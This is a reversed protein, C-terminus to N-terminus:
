QRTTMTTSSKPNKTRNVKLMSLLNEGSLHRIGKLLTNGRTHDAEAGKSVGHARSSYRSKGMKLPLEFDDDNEVSRSTFHGGNQYFITRLSEFLDLLDQMVDADCWTSELSAILHSKLIDFHYVDLGLQFLRYHQLIARDYCRQKTEDDKGFDRIALDMVGRQIDFLDDLHCQGFYEDLSPDKLMRECMQFVIVDFYSSGGMREIISRKIGAM